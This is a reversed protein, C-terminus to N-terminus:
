PRWHNLILCQDAVPVGSKELRGLAVAIHSNKMDRKPDNDYHVVVIGPHHGGCTLILQHLDLFDESDKTMLVLEERVARELHRPDPAGRLGFDAPRFVTHGAQRLMGTLARDTFNDDLYIMM